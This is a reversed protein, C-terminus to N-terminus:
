DDFLKCSYQCDPWMDSGCGTCCRPRDGCYDDYDDDEDEDDDLPIYWDFIEKKTDYTVNTGCCPCIYLTGRIHELDSCCNPCDPVESDDDNDDEEDRPVFKRQIDEYDTKDRGSLSLAIAGIAIAGGLLIRAIDKLKAM